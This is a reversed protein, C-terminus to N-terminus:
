LAAHHNLRALRCHELAQLDVHGKDHGEVNLAVVLHM